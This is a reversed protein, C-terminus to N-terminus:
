LSLKLHATAGHMHIMMKRGAKDYQAIVSAIEMMHTMILQSGTASLYFKQGDCSHENISYYTTWLIEYM